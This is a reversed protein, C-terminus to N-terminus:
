AQLARYAADRTTWDLHEVMAEGVARAFAFVASLVIVGIVGLDFANM